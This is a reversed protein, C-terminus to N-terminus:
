LRRQCRPCLHSYRRQYRLREIRHYCLLCRHGQRQYVLLSPYYTGEGELNRYSRDAFTSGGHAIAERLVCGIGDVVQALGDTGLRQCPEEPHFGVRFLAEDAYMNGLGAMMKQDMIFAKVGRHTLLFRPRVEDIVVQPDALLDVGLHSLMTAHPPDVSWHDVWFVEGFTRPDVLLLSGGNDFTMALQTHAPQTHVPQTRTAESDSAGELRLFGSMGLHIVVAGLDEFRLVLFKGIRDVGIVRRPEWHAFVEVDGRRVVRRGDVRVSEIVLGEIARELQRRITEVEPLEPM